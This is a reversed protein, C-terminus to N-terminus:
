SQGGEPTPWFQTGPWGVPMRDGPPAVTPDPPKLPTDIVKLLGGVRSFVDVPLHVVDNDGLTGGM